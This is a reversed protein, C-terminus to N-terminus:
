CCNRPLSLLEGGATAERERDDCVRRRGRQTQRIGCKMKAVVGRPGCECAHMWAGVRLGAERLLHFLISVQTEGLRDEMQGVSNSVNLGEDARLRVKELATVPLSLRGGMNARECSEHSHSLASRGAVLLKMAILPLLSLLAIPVQGHM